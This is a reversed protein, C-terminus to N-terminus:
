PGSHECQTATPSYLTALPDVTVRAENCKAKYDEYIVPTFIRKLKPRLGTQREGDNLVALPPPRRGPPQGNNDYYTSLRLYTIRLPASINM